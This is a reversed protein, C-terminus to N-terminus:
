LSLFEFILASRVRPPAQHTPTANHCRARRCYIGCIRLTLLISQLGFSEPAFAPHKPPGTFLDPRTFSLQAAMSSLACSTWIPTGNRFTSCRRRYAANPVGSALRKSTDYELSGFVWAERLMKLVAPPGVSSDQVRGCSVGMERGLLGVMLLLYTRSLPTSGLAHKAGRAPSSSKGVPSSGFAM